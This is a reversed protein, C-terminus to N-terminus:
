VLTAKNGADQDEYWAIMEEHFADAVSSRNLNLSTDASSNPHREEVDAMGDPPSREAMKARETGTTCDRSEGDYAVPSLPGAERSDRGGSPKRHKTSYKYFDAMEYPKTEEWYPQFHGMTVINMEVGPPVQKPSSPLPVPSRASDQETVISPPADDSPMERREPRHAPATQLSVSEDAVVPAPSNSALSPERHKATAKRATVPSDLSTEVWDKTRQKLSETSYSQATSSFTKSSSICMTLYQSNYPGCLGEQLTELKASHVSAGYGTPSTPQSSFPEVHSAKAHSPLGLGSLSPLRGGLFGEGSCVEQLKKRHLQHHHLLAAALPPKHFVTEVPRHVAEHLRPKGDEDLPVFVPVGSEDVHRVMNEHYSHAKPPFNSGGGGGYAAPFGRPDSVVFGDPYSASASVLRRQQSPSATCYPQHIHPPVRADARETSSAPSRLSPSPSTWGPLNQVASSAPPASPHSERKPHSPSPASTGKTRRSHRRNSELSNHRSVLGLDQPEPPANAVLDDQSDFAQSTRQTPVSYLNSGEISLTSEFRNKYPTRMPVPSSGGSSSTTLTPYQQRRYTTRTQYVASPAYGSWGQCVVPSVGCPVRHHSGRPKSPSAPASVSSPSPQLCLEAPVSSVSPLRSCKEALSDDYKRPKPSMAPSVDSLNGSERFPTDSGGTSESINDESPEDDSQQIVRPKGHKTQKKLTGLKEEVKKLKEQAQQYGIKRQRRLSKDASMDNALRLAASTIKNQLEYELELNSLAEEKGKSLLQDDLIFATGVRRRVQPLSEGPALPMEPPLEGTVEGERLCLTKLEELKKRLADELAEKRAKLALLMEQKAAQTEENVHDEIKIAPLSHCSASRSLNSGTSASSLSQSSKSLEAAFKDLTGVDEIKRKGVNNDLYFQHQAIAMSWISKTLSPTAAFWVLVTVNGPGFTRRSVSVQTTSDSIADALPDFVEPPAEIVDEYVNFSSLAHVVRRPNHVEISFKKDRFYLNELLKWQFFKRPIKKDTYDYQSVGRCSLGVWWPIGGKDKVEYFHIGYTPMTEVLNMYSIISSGRSRGALEQYQEIVKGECFSISPHEKLTSTPLVPLKKLYNKTTQDDVYNGYTAQLVLAALQFVTESDVELSGKAILSKCQLYFAEVTASDKLLSISEVYYKVLFYLVLVGQSSKKPLDHELVRKDLQLWHYHGTEDLFALGFYEKEKLNFHSAVMDLLDCAYLRPQILIDLRREDLLVVQSRRGDSMRLRRLIRM